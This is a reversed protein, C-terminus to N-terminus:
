GRWSQPIQIKKKKFKLFMCIVKKVKFCNCKVSLLCKILLKFSCIYQTQCSIEYFFWIDHSPGIAWIQFCNLKQIMGKEIKGM